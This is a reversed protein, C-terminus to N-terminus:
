PKKRKHRKKEKKASTGSDELNHALHLERLLTRKKTQHARMRCLIDDLARVAELVHPGKNLMVCEARHGMAADTVEARSPLGSKALSELVQTAWIVPVHAAECFWLIEEQLEALREFGGEVALDGRAIMIGCCPSRMAALLMQPLNDFGRRTEIKLVIALEPRGLRQLETQLQEVDQTTNAFSLEVVDAHAAVFELDRLDQETLAPTRLASVPLNIGKDARLKEGDPGARTIRVLVEDAEVKEVVAGIKGDDFSIPEGARVDDFVEPLTCGISAPTLLKGGADCVAPHGPQLDRMLRLTDGQHLLLTHESAPLAGVAAKHPPGDADEKGGAPMRRLVTGPVLYASQAGEALCGSKSTTQVLLNRRKDRADTFRIGDGPRLQRLWAGPVPLCVDAGEPVCAPPQDEAHLWVRAPQSPQGLADRRARLRLVPPGPQMPGTRLKPGGLDMVVKCTNGLAREARRLHKIMRAWTAADDHACNIRICDMGQALLDHILRPSDAAESPMTVMIRVNRGPEAAGLLDGAHQELLQQGHAFDRVSAMSALPEWPQGSLAHLVDLVTDVTALVHSEARGLSSLGLAALRMQLSRLDQQRLHLYHVLNRASDHFNPHVGELLPQVAPPIATLADRLALLQQRVADVEKHRLSVSTRASTAPKPM